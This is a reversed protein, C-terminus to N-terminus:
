AHLIVVASNAEPAGPWKAGATKAMFHGWTIEQVLNHVRMTRHFPM